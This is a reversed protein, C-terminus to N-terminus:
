KEAVEYTLTVRARVTVDAPAIPPAAAQAMMFAEGQRRLPVPPAAADDLRASLLRALRVG